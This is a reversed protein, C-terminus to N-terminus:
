DLSRRFTACTQTCAVRFEISAGIAPEAESRPVPVYGFRPFWTEATETLLYAQRAGAERALEEVASVLAAGVGRGRADPEVAVSRVLAADGYLEVAACGILREGDRAVVGTAFANALGDLPLGASTLLAEVAPLDGATAREIAVRRVPAPGSTTPRASAM